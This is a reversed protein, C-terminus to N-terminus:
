PPEQGLETLGDISMRLSVVRGTSCGIAIASGDKSVDSVGPRFDPPLWISGRGRWTIWSSDGSLAWSPGTGSSPTRLSSTLDGNPGIAHSSSDGVSRSGHSSSRADALEISGASTQLRLKSDGFEDFRVHRVPHGLRITRVEKGSKADWIRVARDDSGSAIRSGDPSFAVSRVWGSHGELKHVEKGSKADWIRVTRDDSGSAIRSGDPSFAVSSVLGDHCELIQLCQSWNQEVIPKTLVWGPEERAYLRRIISNVPTFLLASIYTQLPAHEIVWRNYLIFRCADEVLRV